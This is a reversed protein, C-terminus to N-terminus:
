TARAMEGPFHCRVAHAAEINRLAPAEDRCRERAIPCRQHFACGPPPALPSPPEGQLTIAAGPRDPDPEPVASFLTVTYPHLPRAFLQSEPATEVVQGLYMVAVRRSVHRVVAINHSIFLVAVGFREQIDQLLNLIQAQISVDLASVAEDAVIL